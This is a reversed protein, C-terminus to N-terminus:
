LRPWNDNNQQLSAEPDQQHLRNSQEGPHLDLSVHYGLSLLESLARDIEHLRADRQTKSAFRPMVREAPVPLRVHSMGAKRLERLLEISPPPSENQNFWGDLNFGRSLAQIASAPVNHVLNSCASAPSSALPSGLLVLALALWITRSGGQPRKARLM